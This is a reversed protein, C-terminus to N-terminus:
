LDTLVSMSFILEGYQRKIDGVEEKIMDGTYQYKEKLLDIMSVVNILDVKVSGEAYLRSDPKLIISPNDIIEYINVHCSAIYWALGRLLVFSSKEQHRLTHRVYFIIQEDNMQKIIDLNM